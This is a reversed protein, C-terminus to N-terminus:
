SLSYQHKKSHRRTMSSYEGFLRCSKISGTTEMFPLNNVPISTVIPASFQYPRVESPISILSVGLAKEIKAITKLGLNEKGSLLKTVQAPTVDIMEALQKKSIERVRLVHELYLAIQMSKLLWDRNEERYKAEELEKASVPKAVDQLRKLNFGM